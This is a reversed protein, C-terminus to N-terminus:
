EDEMALLDNGAIKLSFVMILCLFHVFFFCLTSQAYSYWVRKFFVLFLDLYCFSNSGVSGSTSSALESLAEPGMNLRQCDITTGIDRFLMKGIEIEFSL